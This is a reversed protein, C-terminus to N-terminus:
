ERHHDNRRHDARAPKAVVHEGTNLPEVDPEAEFASKRDHHERDNQVTDRLAKAARGAHRARRKERAQATHHLHAARRRRLVASGCMCRSAIVWTSAGESEGSERSACTPKRVSGFKEIIANVLATSTSRM